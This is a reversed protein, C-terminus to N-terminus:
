PAALSARALEKDNRAVIHKNAFAPHSWCVGGRQNLQDLTPEILQARSIEEYGKPTLRAIILQGRENFMWTRDGNQVFHITSWRSKPTATLDEWVRGGSRLELCRLEGYSDVGYVHDGLVIPTSIISQLADTDRESRGVRHWLREAKPAAADLKLLLSGDYFSTCFLRDGAVVPSAVGIPMNRPKLVDRWHVAGSVPDLGAVSDGTWVVIVTQDGQRVLVPTAYQARDDLAKWREKGTRADLAVVCAGPRGGIHLVVLDGVLLPSAAIGWIPMEIQYDQELDRQWIVQGSAADLAFAHGTAGLSYARGGAIVVSARPGATYGISYGRTPPSKTAARNYQCDYSHVWLTAGTQEDFCLVREVEKPSTQRDMVYVRGGAVTPGSYGPGIPVRWTTALSPERFRDVIGSETWRGDATPGRWQPWDEASSMVTLGSLWCGLALGLALSLASPRLRMSTRRADRALSRRTALPSQM